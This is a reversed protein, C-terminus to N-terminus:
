EVSNSQIQDLSSSPALLRMYEEYPKTREDISHLFASDSIQTRDFQPGPCYPSPFNAITQEVSREQQKEQELSPEPALYHEKVEQIPITDSPRPFLSEGRPFEEKVVYQAENQRVKVISSKNLCILFVLFAIVALIAIQLDVFSVLVILVLIVIKITTNNLWQMSKYDLLPAVFIFILLAVKVILATLNSDVMISPM